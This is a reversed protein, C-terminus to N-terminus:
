KIIGLLAGRADCRELVRHFVWEGKWPGTPTEALGDELVGRLEWAHKVLPRLVRLTATINGDMNTVCEGTQLPCCTASCHRYKHVFGLTAFVNSHPFSYFIFLRMEARIGM